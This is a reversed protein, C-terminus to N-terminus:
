VIALPASPGSEKSLLVGVRVYKVELFGCPIMKFPDDQFKRRQDHVSGLKSKLLDTLVFCGM